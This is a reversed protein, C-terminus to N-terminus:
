RLLVWSFTGLGGAVLLLTCGGVGASKQPHNTTQYLGTGPVSVRTYRRGNARVGTRFGRGGVSYGVGSKSVNM